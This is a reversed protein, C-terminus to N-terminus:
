NKDGARLGGQNTLPTPPKINSISFRRDHKKKGVVLRKPRQPAVDAGGTRIMSISLCAEILNSQAEGTEQSILL